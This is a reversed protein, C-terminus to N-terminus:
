MDASFLVPRLISIATYINVSPSFPVRQPQLFDLAFLLLLFRDRQGFCGAGWCCAPKPPVLVAETNLLETMGCSHPALDANIPSIESNLLHGHFPLKISSSCSVPVSLICGRQQSSGSFAELTPPWFNFSFVVHM